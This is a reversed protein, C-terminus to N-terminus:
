RGAWPNVIWEGPEGHEWPGTDLLGVAHGALEGDEHLQVLMTGVGHKDECGAIEEPEYARSGTLRGARYVRYRMLPDYRQELADM